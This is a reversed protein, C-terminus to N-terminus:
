DGRRDARLGRPRVHRDHGDNAVAAEEHGAHFEGSGHLLFQRDDDHEDVVTAQSKDLRDLLAAILASEHADIQVVRIEAQEGFGEADAGPADFIIHLELPSQLLRELEAFRGQNFHHELSLLKSKSARPPAIFLFCEWVILHNKVCSSCAWAWVGTTSNESASHPRRFVSSAEPARATTPRITPM